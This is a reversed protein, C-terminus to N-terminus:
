GVAHLRQVETGGAWFSLNPGQVYIDTIAARGVQRSVRLVLALDGSNIADRINQNIAAEVNEVVVVAAVPNVDKYCVM